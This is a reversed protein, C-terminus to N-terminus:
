NLAAAFEKTANAAALTKKAPSTELDYIVSLM